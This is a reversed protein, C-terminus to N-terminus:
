DEIDITTTKQIGQTMTDRDGPLNQMASGDEGAGYAQARAAEVSVTYTAAEHRAFGYHVQVVVLACGIIIGITACLITYDDWGVNRVILIRTAKRLAVM